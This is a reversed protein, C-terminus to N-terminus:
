EGLRFGIPLRKRFHRRECSLSLANRMYEKDVSLGKPGYTSRNFMFTSEM